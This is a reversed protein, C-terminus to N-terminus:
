NAGPLASRSVTFNAFDAAQDVPTAWTTDSGGFFTSFFLGRIRLQPV